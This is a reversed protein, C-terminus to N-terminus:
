RHILRKNFPLLNELKFETITFILASLISLDRRPKDTKSGSSLNCFYRYSQPIFLKDSIITLQAIRM